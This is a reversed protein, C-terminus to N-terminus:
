LIVLIFGRAEKTDNRTWGVESSGRFGVISGVALVLQKM